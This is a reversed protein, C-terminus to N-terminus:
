LKWWNCHDRVCKFVCHLLLLFQFNFYNYNLTKFSLEPSKNKFSQINKLFKFTKKKFCTNKKDCFFYANEDWFEQKPKRLPEELKKSKIWYELLWDFVDFWWVMLCNKAFTSVQSMRLFLLCSSGYCSVVMVTGRHILWHFLKSQLVEWYMFQYRDVDPRFSFIRAM